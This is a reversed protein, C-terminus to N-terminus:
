YYSSPCPITSLTCMPSPLTALDVPDSAPFGVYDTSPCRPCPKHIRMLNHRVELRDGIRTWNLRPLQFFDFEMSLMLMSPAHVGCLSADIGLDGNKIYNLLYQFMYPDRDLSVPANDAHRALTCLISEPVNLLDTHNLVFVQGRLQLTLVNSGVHDTECNMTSTVSM